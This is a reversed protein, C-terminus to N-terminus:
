STNLHQLVVFISWNLGTCLCCSDPKAPLVPHCHKGTVLPDEAPVYEKTATRLAARLSRQRTSLKANLALHANLDQFSHGGLSTPSRLMDFPQFTRHFGDHPPAELFPTRKVPSTVEAPDSGFRTVDEMFSIEAGTADRGDVQGVDM